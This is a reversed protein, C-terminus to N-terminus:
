YPELHSKYIENQRIKRNNQLQRVKADIIVAKLQPSQFFGEIIVIKSYTLYLYKLSVLRNFQYAKLRKVEIGLLSLHELHELGEFCDATISNISCYILSIKKVLKYDDIQKLQYYSKPIIWSIWVGNDHLVGNCALYLKIM